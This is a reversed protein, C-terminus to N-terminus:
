GFGRFEIWYTATIIIVNLVTIPSNFNTNDTYIKCYGCPTSVSTIPLWGQSVPDRPNFNMSHTRNVDSLPIIKTYNDKANSSTPTASSQTEFWMNLIGNNSSSVPTAVYRVKRIRYEDFSAFRSAFNDVAGGQVALSQAVVGTTVTTQYMGVWTEIKLTAAVEGPVAAPMPTVGDDRRRRQNTKPKRTPAM